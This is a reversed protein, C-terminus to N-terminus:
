RQFQRLLASLGALLLDVLILLLRSVIVVSLASHAPLVGGLAFALGADRVGAGAPAVVAAIGASFALAMGGTIALWDEFTLPALGSALIAVHAGLAAWSGLSWMVALGTRPVSGAGVPEGRTARLLVNALRLIVKPHLAALAALGIVLRAFPPLDLPPLVSVALAVAVLVGTGVTVWTAIIYAVGIRRRPVGLERAAQAQLVLPWVSGPVYKGLQAVFFLRRVHSRRVEGEQVALVM